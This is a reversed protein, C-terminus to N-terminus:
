DQECQRLLRERLNLLLHGLALEFHDRQIAIIARNHAFSFQCDNVILDIGGRAGDPELRAKRIGLKPKPGALEDIRPKQQGRALASEDHRFRDNLAARLARVSEQDLSILGVQCHLDM